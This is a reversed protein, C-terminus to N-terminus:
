KSPRPARPVQPLRPGPYIRLFCKRLFSRRLPARLTPLGGGGPWHSLGAGPEGLLLSPEVLSGPSWELETGLSGQGRGGRVAAKLAQLQGSTPSFGLEAAYRSSGQADWLRPLTTLVSLGSQSCQKPLFPM